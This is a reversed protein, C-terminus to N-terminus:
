TTFIPYKTGQMSAIFLKGKNDENYATVEFNDGLTKHKKLLEPAVAWSHHYYSINESTLINFLDDSMVRYFFSDRKANVLPHIVEVEGSVATLADKSYCFVCFRTMVLFFTPYLKMAWASLWLLSTIARMMLKWPEIYCTPYQNLSNAQDKWYNMLYVKLVLEVEQFSYEM